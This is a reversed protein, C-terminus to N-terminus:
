ARVSDPISGGISEIVQLSSAIQSRERTISGILVIIATLGIFLAALGPEEDMMDIPISLGTFLLLDVPGDGIVQYAIDVGRCTAYRTRAHEM